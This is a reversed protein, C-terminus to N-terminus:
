RIPILLLSQTGCGPRSDVHLTAGIADAFAVSRALEIERASTGPRGDRVRELAIPSLTAGTDHIELFLHPEAALAMPRAVIPHAESVHGRKIQTRGTMVTICAWEDGIAQLAADILSATTAFLGGADVATAPLAKARAVDFHVRSERAPVRSELAKRVPDAIQIRPTSTAHSRTPTRAPAADGAETSAQPHRREDLGDTSDREDRPPIVGATAMFADPEGSESRIPQVELHVFIERGDFTEFPFEIMCTQGELFRQGVFDVLELEIGAVDLFHSIPKQVTEVLPFGTIRSWALNAWEVVGARNGILIAQDSSEAGESRARTITRTVTDNSERVNSEHFRLNTDQM